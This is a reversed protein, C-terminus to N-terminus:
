SKKINYDFFSIIRKKDKPTMLNLHELSYVITTFVKSKRKIGEVKNSNFGELSTKASFGLAFKSYIPGSNDINTSKGDITRKVIEEKVIDGKIKLKDIIEKYMNDKFAKDINPEKNMEGKIFETYSNKFKDINIMKAIPPNLSALDEFARVMRKEKSSINPNQYVERNLRESRTYIDEMLHELSTTDRLFNNEKYEKLLGTDYAYKVRTDFNHLSSTKTSELANAKNIKSIVNKAIGVDLEDKYANMKDYGINMRSLVSIGKTLKEQISKFNDIFHDAKNSSKKLLDMRADISDLDEKGFEHYKYIYDTFNNDVKDIKSGVVPFQKQIVEFNKMGEISAYDIKTNFERANRKNIRKYLETSIEEEEKDDENPEEEYDEDDEAPDDETEDEESEDDTDGSTSEDESDDSSTDDDEVSDDESNNEEPEDDTDGNSTEEEDESDDSSEDEDEASDDNSEDESEDDELGDSDDGEGDEGAGGSNPGAHGYGEDSEDEPGEGDESNPNEEDENEPEETAIEPDNKLEDDVEDMKDVRAKAIHQAAQVFVKHNDESKQIDDIVDKKISEIIGNSEMGLVQRFESKAITGTNENSFSYDDNLVANVLEKTNTRSNSNGEIIKRREETELAAYFELSQKYNAMVDDGMNEYSIGGAKLAERYSRTPALKEEGLIENVMDTLKEEFGTVFFSKDEKKNTPISKMIFNKVTSSMHHKVFNDYYAELAKNRYTIENNLNSM